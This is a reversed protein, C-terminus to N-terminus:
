KNEVLYNLFPKLFLKDLGNGIQRAYSVEEPNLDQSVKLVQAFSM